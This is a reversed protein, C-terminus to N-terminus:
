NGVPRLGADLVRVEDAALSLERITQGYRVATLRVVLVQDAASAASSDAAMAVAAAVFAVAAPMNGHTM